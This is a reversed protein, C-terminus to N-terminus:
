RTTASGSEASGPGAPGHLLDVPGGGGADSAMEQLWALATWLPAPAIRCPRRRADRRRRVLGARELVRLHRSVAPMTMAFPAAIETVSAEGDVLRVLIARRTPDALAAMIRSLEDSAM